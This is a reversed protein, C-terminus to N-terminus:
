TRLQIKYLNFAIGIISEIVVLIMLFIEINSNSTYIAYIAYTFLLFKVILLFCRFKNNMM